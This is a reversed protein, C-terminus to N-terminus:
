IEKKKNEYLEDINIKNSCEEDNSFLICSM